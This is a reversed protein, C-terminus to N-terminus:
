SILIDFKKMTLTAQAVRRARERDPDRMRNGWSGRNRFIWVLLGRSTFVSSEFQV